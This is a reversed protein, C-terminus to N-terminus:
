GGGPGQRPVLSEPAAIADPAVLFQVEGAPSVVVVFRSRGKADNLSLRTEGDPMRILNVAGDGTPSLLSLAGAGDNGASAAFGRNGRSPQGLTLMGAGGGTADSALSAGLRNKSKLEVSAVDDQGVTVRVSSKGETIMELQGGGEKPVSLSMSPRGSGDRLQVEAVGERSVGMRGREVGSEDTISLERVVLRPGPEAPYACASTGACLFAVLWWAARHTLDRCGRNPQDM